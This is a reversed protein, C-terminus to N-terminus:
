KEKQNAELGCEFVASLINKLAIQEAKGRDTDLHGTISDIEIAKMQKNFSKIASEIIIDKYVTKENIKLM